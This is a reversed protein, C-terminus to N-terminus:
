IHLEMLQFKIGVINVTTKEKTYKHCIVDKDALKKKGVVNIMKQM